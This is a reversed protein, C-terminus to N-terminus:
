YTLTNKRLFKRKKVFVDDMVEPTEKPTPPPVGYMMLAAQSPTLTAWFTDEMGIDKLKFKV